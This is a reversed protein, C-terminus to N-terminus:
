GGGGAVRDIADAAGASVAAGAAGDGPGEAAPYSHGFVIDVDGTLEDGYLYRELLYSAYGRVLGTWGDLDSIVLVLGAALLAAGAAVPRPDRLPLYEQIPSPRFHPVPRLDGLASGCDRTVLRGDPRQFFRACVEGRGAGLVALAQQRTMASLDYVHRTCRDCFRIRDDGRMGDWPETCPTRVTISDLLDRDM